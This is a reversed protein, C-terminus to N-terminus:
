AVETTNKIEILSDQQHIKQLSIIFPVIFRKSMILANKTPVGGTPTKKWVRVDLVRQGKDELVTLRLYEDAKLRM